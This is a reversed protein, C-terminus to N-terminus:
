SLHGCLEEGEQNQERCERNGTFCASMMRGMGILSHEDDAVGLSLMARVQPEHLGFCGLHLLEDGLLEIYRQGVALAFGGIFLFRRVGIAAFLCSVASAMPRLTQRLVHVAFADDQRVATALDVSTIADTSGRTLDYLASCRFHEPQRLALQQALAVVGRGSSIAGLHGAGGCDCPIPEDGGAVRWHGLEGGYGEDDVLAEGKWFVKNGIGSSVTILCFSQDGRDAYRWAAATIDNAVFVPLGLAEQLLKQLNLSEAGPGWITPAATVVGAKTMPGAFSLGVATADAGAASGLYAKLRNQLQRVVRDQLQQGSEEAYLRLSETQFREIAFVDDQGQKICGIRFTTGGIDAVVYRRHNAGAQITM